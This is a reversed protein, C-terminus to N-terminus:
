LLGSFDLGCEQVHHVIAQHPYLVGPQSIPGESGAVNEGMRVWGGGVAM